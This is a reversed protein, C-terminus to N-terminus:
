VNKKKKKMSKNLETQALELETMNAKKAENELEKKMAEEKELFENQLNAKYSEFDEKSYLEDETEKKLKKEIDEM